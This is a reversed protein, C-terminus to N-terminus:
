AESTIPDEGGPSELILRLALRFTEDSVADPDMLREFMLGTSLAHTILGLQEPSAPLQLGFADATQEILAAATARFRKYVALFRERLEPDRVAQAWFEIDLVLWDRDRRLSEAWHAGSAELRADASTARRVRQELEATWRESNREYLALFLDAKGDFNSYVAGTSLGAEEAVEDVSAAHYGREPFVKAAADLVQTRTM